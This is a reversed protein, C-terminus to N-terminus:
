PSTLINWGARMAGAGPVSFGVTSRSVGVEATTMQVADVVTTGEVQEVKLEPNEVLTALLRTFLVFVSKWVPTPMATLMNKAIDFHFAIAHGLIEVLKSPRKTVDALQKLISIHEDKNTGKRGRMNLLEDLKEDIEAENYKSIPKPGTPALNVAGKGSPKKTPSPPAKKQFGSSADDDDDDDDGDESGSDDDKKKSAAVSCSRVM